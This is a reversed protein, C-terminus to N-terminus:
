RIACCLDMGMHSLSYRFTLIDKSGSLNDRLCEGIRITAMQSSRAQTDLFSGLGAKNDTSFVLAPINPVYAWRKSLLLRPTSHPALLAGALSMMGYATISAHFLTHAEPWKHWYAGDTYIVHLGSSHLLSIFTMLQSLWVKFLSSGKQPFFFNINIHDLFLHFLGTDLALLKM